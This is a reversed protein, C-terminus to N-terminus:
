QTLSRIVTDVSGSKQVGEATKPEYAKLVQEGAFGYYSSAVGEVPNYIVNKDAVQLQIMSDVAQGTQWSPTEACGAVMLAALAVAAKGAKLQLKGFRAKM